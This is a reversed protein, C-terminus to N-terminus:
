KLKSLSRMIKETAVWLNEQHERIEDFDTSYINGTVNVRKAIQNLNNSYSSLLRTMEKLEPVELKVMYGDIAMKRIYASMNTTGYSEMRERIQALESESMRVLVATERKEVILASAGKFFNASFKPSNNKHWVDYKVM